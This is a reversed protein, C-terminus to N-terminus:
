RGSVHDSKCGNCVNSTEHEGTEVENEGEGQDRQLGRPWMISADCWMSVAHKENEDRGRYRGKDRTAKAGELM